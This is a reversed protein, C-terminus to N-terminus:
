DDEVITIITTGRIKDIDNHCDQKSSYGEDSDAIDDGNAAKLRWWWEGKHDKYIQFKMSADGELAGDTASGVLQKPNAGGEKVRLMKAGFVILFVTAVLFALIQLFAPIAINTGYTVSQNSTPAVAFISGTIAMMTWMGFVVSLLYVFWSTKLPWTVVANNKLVDKIFTISLALIGTALTILQKALDNASAFGATADM